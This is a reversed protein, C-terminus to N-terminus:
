EKNKQAVIKLAAAFIISDISLQCCAIPLSFWNVVPLQCFFNAIPLLCNAFGDQGFFKGIFARNTLLSNIEDALVIFGRCTLM